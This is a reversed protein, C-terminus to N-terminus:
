DQLHQQTDVDSRTREAFYAIERDANIVFMVGHFKPAAASRCLLFLTERLGIIQRLQRGEVCRDYHARGVDQPGGPRLPVVTISKQGQWVHDSMVTARREAADMVVFLLLVIGVTGGFFYLAVTFSSPSSILSLVAAIIGVVLLYALVEASNLPIFAYVLVTTIPIDVQTADVGFQGLYRSLYAWGSFYVVAVPLAALVTDLIANRITSM